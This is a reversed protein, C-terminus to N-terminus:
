EGEALQIANRLPIRSVGLTIRKALKAAFLIDSIGYTNIVSDRLRYYCESSTPIYSTKRLNIDGHYFGNIYKQRFTQLTCPVKEFTGQM